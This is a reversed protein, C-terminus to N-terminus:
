PGGRRTGLGRLTTTLKTVALTAPFSGRGRRLSKRPDAADSPSGSGLPPSPDVGPCPAPALDVVAEWLSNELSANPSSLSAGGFLGLRFWGVLRPFLGLAPFPGLKRKLSPPYIRSLGWSACM